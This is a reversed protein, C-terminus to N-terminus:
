FDDQVRKWKAGCEDCVLMQGWQAVPSYFRGSVCCTYSKTSQPANLASEKRPHYKSGNRGRFAKLRCFDSCFRATSRRGRIEDGCFECKRM